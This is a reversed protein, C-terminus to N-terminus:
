SPLHDCVIQGDDMPGAGCSKCVPMWLGNPWLDDDVDWVQAQGNVIRTDGHENNEDLARQARHLVDRGLGTLGEDDILGRNRLSRRTSAHIPKGQEVLGLQHAHYHDDTM